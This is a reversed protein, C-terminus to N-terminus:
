PEVTGVTVLAGFRRLAVPIGVTADSFAQVIPEFGVLSYTAEPMRGDISIRGDGFELVNARHYINLRQEDIVLVVYMDNFHRRVALALPCNVTDGPSGGAQIRVVLREPFVDQRAASLQLEKVTDDPLTMRVSQALPSAPPDATDSIEQTRKWKDDDRNM